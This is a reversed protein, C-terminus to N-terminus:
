PRKPPGADTANQGYIMRAIKARGAAAECLSCPHSTSYLICGSLDDGIKSQADKIAVREAHSAPNKTTVVRSPGLGIIRRDKVVVAGYPQDGAAVAVAKMNFAANIFEQHEGTAATQARSPSAIAAFASSVVALFSRRSHSCM